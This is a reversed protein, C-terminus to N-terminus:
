GMDGVHAHQLGDKMVMGHKAGTPNYHNGAAKGMESCAGYEHIHFGHQGPPVNALQARVQLGSPTDELTVTGKIPSNPATGRVDASASWAWLRGAALAVALFGAVYTKTKM